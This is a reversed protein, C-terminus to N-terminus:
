EGQDFFEVGRRAVLEVFTSGESSGDLPQSNLQQLYRGKGFQWSGSPDVKIGHRLLLDRTESNFGTFSRDLLARQRERTAADPTLFRISSVRRGEMEDVFHPLDFVLFGGHHIAAAAQGAGDARHVLFRALNSETGELPSLLVVVNRNSDVFTEALVRKGPLGRVVRKKPDDPQHFGLRGLDEIVGMRESPSAGVAIHDIQTIRPRRRFHDRDEPGSKRAEFYIPIRHGLRVGRKDNERIVEMGRAALGALVRDVDGHVTSRFATYGTLQEPSTQERVDISLSRVGPTTFQGTEGGVPVFGLGQFFNGADGGRGMQVTLELGSFSHGIKFASGVSFTIPGPILFNRAQVARIPM